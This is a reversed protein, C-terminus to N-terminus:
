ANLIIICSLFFRAFNEIALIEELKLQMLILYNEKWLKSNTKEPNFAGKFFSYNKGGVRYIGFNQERGKVEKM